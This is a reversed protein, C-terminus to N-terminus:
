RLYAAQHATEQRFRLVYTRSPTQLCKHPMPPTAKARILGAWRGAPSSLSAFTGFSSAVVSLLSEGQCRPQILMSVNYQGYHVAEFFTKTVRADFATQSCRGLCPTIRPIVLNSCSCDAHTFNATLKLTMYSLAQILTETVNDDSMAHGTAGSMLEICTVNATYNTASVFRSICYHCSINHCNGFPITSSNCSPDDQQSTSLM